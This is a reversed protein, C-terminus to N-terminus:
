CKVLVCRCRPKVCVHLAISILVKGDFVCICKTNVCVHLAFSTHVKGDFVRSCKTNVCVVAICLKHASTYIYIYMIKKNTADM